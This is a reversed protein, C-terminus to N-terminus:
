YILESYTKTSPDVEYRYITTNVLSKATVIYKGEDNVIYLLVLFENLSMNKDLIKIINSDIVLKKSQLLTMLKDM